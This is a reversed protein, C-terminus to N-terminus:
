YDYVTLNGRSTAIMGRSDIIQVIYLDTDTLTLNPNLLSGNLLVKQPIDAPTQIRTPVHYTVLRNYSQITKRYWNYSFPDGSFDQVDLTVSSDVTGCPPKPVVSISDSQTSTPHFYCSLISATILLGKWPSGRRQSPRSPSKMM